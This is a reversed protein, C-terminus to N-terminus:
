WDSRKSGHRPSRFTDKGEGTKQEGIKGSHFTIAAMIQVDYLRMGLVRSGAERTLAMVEPLVDDLTKGSKLEEKIQALAPQFEDDRM